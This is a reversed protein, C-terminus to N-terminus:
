QNHLAFEEEACRKMDSLAADNSSFFRTPAVEIKSSAQYIMMAAFLPSTAKELVYGPKGALHVV